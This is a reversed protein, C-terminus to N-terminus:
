FNFKWSFSLSTAPVYSKFQLGPTLDWTMDWRINMVPLELELGFEPQFLLNGTSLYETDVYDSASMNLMADVYLASGIYKGIYVTSNDFFNGITM